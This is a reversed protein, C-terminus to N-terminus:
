YAAMLRDHQFCEHTCRHGQGCESRIGTEINSLRDDREVRVMDRPGVLAGVSARRSGVAIQRLDLDPDMVIAVCVDFLEDLVEVIGDQRLLGLLELSEEDEDVLGAGGNLGFEGCKGVLLVCLIHGQGVQRRIVLRYPIVLDIKTRRNM